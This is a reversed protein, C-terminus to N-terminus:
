LGIYKTEENPNGRVPIQGSYSPAIKLLREKHKTNNFGIEKLYRKTDEKRTLFVNGHILRSPHFGLKLLAKRYASSLSRDTNKFGIRVTGPNKNSLRYVSGDTDTLGRVFSRLCQPDELLWPPFSFRARLGPLNGLLFVALERSDAGVYLGSGRKLLSTKLGFLTEFLNSIFRAYKEEHVPHCAVRIQYAGYKKNVYVNGDGLIIGFFEALLPSYPPVKILNRGELSNRGGLAQGWSDKRKEIIWRGYRRPRDLRSYIRSPLSATEYRWEKLADPSVGLMKAVDSWNKAKHSKRYQQLLEHQKGNKFILRM